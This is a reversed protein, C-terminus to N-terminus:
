LNELENLEDFGIHVEVDGLAYCGIDYPNYYFTIGQEGIAFNETAAIEEPFFGEAALGVDDAVGYRDYLKDRILEDLLDRQTADFLDNLMLDYGGKLSYNRVTRGYYGHAGGSYGSMDITYVLLTDAVVAADSQASLTNEWAYETEQDPIMEAYLDALATDAAQRASGPSYELDFFNRINAEEIAQLAADESANAISTFDYRVSYRATGCVLLTDVHLTTFRPAVTQEGCGAALLLALSAGLAPFRKMNTNKLHRITPVSAPANRRRREPRDHPLLM